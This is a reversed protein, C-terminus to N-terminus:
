SIVRVMPNLSAKFEQRLSAEHSAEPCGWGLLRKTLERCVFGQSTICGAGGYCAVGDGWSM